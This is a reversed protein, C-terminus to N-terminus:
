QQVKELLKEITLGFEQKEDRHRLTITNSEVEKKGIILMWPIQELQANKVKASIQDNSIDIEARIDYSKLIRLLAESYTNQDDTITLIKAQLPALWFPLKGKYHELLIGFFREFSGFITRHIMVTRKKEGGSAVYTLDFNEPNIFDLQITSCQWERGMSDQISFDIKPGYFAGDGSNVTFKIGSKKLAKELATEAKEWIKNSGM